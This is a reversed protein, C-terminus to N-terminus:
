TGRHPAIRDCCARLTDNSSPDPDACEEELSERLDDEWDENVSM